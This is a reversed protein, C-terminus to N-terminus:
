LLVAHVQCYDRCQDMGTWLVHCQGCWRDLLHGLTFSGLLALSWLVYSMVAKNDLANLVYM